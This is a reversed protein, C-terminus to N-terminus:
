LNPMEKVQKTLKKSMFKAFNKQKNIRQIEM